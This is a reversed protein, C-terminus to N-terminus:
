PPLAPLPVPINMEAYCWAMPSAAEEKGREALRTKAKKKKKM